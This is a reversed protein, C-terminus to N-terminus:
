STADGGEVLLVYLENTNTQTPGTVVLDGLPEFFDYADHRLLMERADLGM